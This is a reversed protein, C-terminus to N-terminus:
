PCTATKPSTSVVRGDVVVSVMLKYTTGSTCNAHTESFSLAGTSSAYWTDVCTSGEYLMITASVKSSTSVGTVDLECIATKGSFSLSPYASVARPEVAIATLSLAVALVLIMAFVRKKM